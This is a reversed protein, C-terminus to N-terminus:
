DEIRRSNALWGRLVEAHQPLAIEPEEIEPHWKKEWEASFAGQYGNALLLDIVARNPVEGQGMLVLDWGGDDRRRADKLHVHGLRSGIFEWTAEITEGMRYPHHVDWIAQFRPHPVQALVRAVEQGRCFADHTELMVTVGHREADPMVAAVGEALWAVAEDLSSGDAVHGGFTRVIPSELANALEIYRRLEDMNAQRAAPDIDTFRTSAGLGAISLGRSQMINRVEAQRAPSLDSPIIEGDLVRIELGAYGNAVAVDAAQTLTWDPCGLTSFVLPNM